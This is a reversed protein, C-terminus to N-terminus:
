PVNKSLVLSSGKCGWYTEEDFIVDHSPASGVVITRAEPVTAAMTEEGERIM